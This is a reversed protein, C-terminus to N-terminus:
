GKRAEYKQLRRHLATRSIGLMQAARTKNGDALDLAELIKSEELDALNMAPGGTPISPQSPMAEPELEPAPKFESPSAFAPPKLSVLHSFNIIPLDARMVAREVMNRLERVNGPFDCNQLFELAEPAFGHIAKKYHGAFYNLFHNALITIDGRRERLPPMWLEFVNLRFYLDERFKGAQVLATLNRNTAAIIRAQMSVVAHGGVRKFQRAELVRLLKAQLAFDLEGIEDLFATGKGAAEFLGPKAKHAGTFAGKEHGFLESECLERPITSCDIEVFPAGNKGWTLEHIRRAVASKGTGTPGTILVTTDVYRPLNKIQADVARMMETTGFIYGGPAWGPSPKHGSSGPPKGITGSEELTSQIREALEQLSFPKTLYDRVGSKMLSVATELNSHATLFVVPLDPRVERLQQYLDAGCMDPLSYDLIALDVPNNQLVVIAEHGSEVCHVTFGQPELGGRIISLTIPEDDVVLLTM